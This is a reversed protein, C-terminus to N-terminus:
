FNPLYQFEFTLPRAFVFLNDAVLSLEQNDNKIM